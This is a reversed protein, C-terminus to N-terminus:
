KEYIRDLISFEKDNNNFDNIKLNSLNDTEQERAALKQEISRNDNNNRVQKISFANDLSTYSDSYFNDGEIYLKDIEEISSYATHNNTLGNFASPVLSENVKIIDQNNINYKEEGNKFDNFASNFTNSNFSRTDEFIKTYNTSMNSRQSKVEALKSSVSRGDFSSENYNHKRNLDDMKQYFSGKNSSQSPQPNNQVYSNYNDRMSNHDRNITKSLLYNNYKQRTEDKKLIKYGISIMSFFEPDINPNKDPHYKIILKKYSEKIEVQSSNPEVGLLEYLNVKLDDFNIKM